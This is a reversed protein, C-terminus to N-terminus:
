ATAEDAEEPQPEPAGEQFGDDAIDLARCLEVIHAPVELDPSPVGPKDGPLTWYHTHSLYGDNITTAVAVDKVGNGFVPAIPGGVVDGKFIASCPFYLNTWRTPAFM